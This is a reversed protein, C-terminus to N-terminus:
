ELSVFSRPIGKDSGLHNFPKCAHHIPKGIGMQLNSTLVLFFDAPGHFQLHLKSLAVTNSEGGFM